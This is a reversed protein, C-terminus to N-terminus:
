KANCTSPFALNSAMVKIPQGVHRATLLLTDEENTKACEFGPMPPIGEEWAAQQPIHSTHAEEACVGYEIWQCVCTLRRVAVDVTKVQQDEVKIGKGPSAPLYSDHPRASIQISSWFEVDEFM